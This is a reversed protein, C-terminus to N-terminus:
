DFFRWTLGLVFQRGEMPYDPTSFYRYKMAGCLVHTVKFYLAIRQVQIAISPDFYLYNGVKVKDQTYFSHLMPCYGDAYYNTNYALALGFQLKAKNKFINLRYFADM